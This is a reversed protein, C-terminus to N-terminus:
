LRLLSEGYPSCSCAAACRGDFKLGLTPDSRADGYLAVASINAADSLLFSDVLSGGMGAADCSQVPTNDFLCAADSEAM